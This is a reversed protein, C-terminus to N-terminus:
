IIKDGNSLMKDGYDRQYKEPLGDLLADEVVWSKNKEEGKITREIWKKINEPIYVSIRVMRIDANRRNRKGRKENL